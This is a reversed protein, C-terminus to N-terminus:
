ILLKIIVFYFISPVGLFYFMSLSIMNIPINVNLPQFILNFAYMFGLAFVVRKIIKIM